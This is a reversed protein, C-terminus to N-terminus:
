YKTYLGKQEGKKMTIKRKKLAQAQGFTNRARVKAGKLAAKSRIRKEPGTMRVCNNSQKDYKFGPPCKMKTVKVGARMVKKKTARVEEVLEGVLGDLGELIESM